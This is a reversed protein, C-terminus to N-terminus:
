PRPAEFIQRLPEEYRTKIETVLAAPDDVNFAHVLLYRRDESIDATLTGPTMTIIGALTAIAHPEQLTLPVWVFAPKIANEPGLIRRAVELNSMVIDRLVRAGLKVTVWPNALRLADGMLPRILLPVGFALLMGLAIHAPHATNNLLLWTVLVVASLVPSPLWASM